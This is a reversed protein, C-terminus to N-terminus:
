MGPPMTKKYVKKVFKPTNFRYGFELGTYANAVNMKIDRLAANRRDTEYRLGAYFRKSQYGLSVYGDLAFVLSEGRSFVEGTNNSYRYFCLDFSTFVAMSLCFRRYFVLNGGAGPALKISFTQMSKADGFDSYFRRKEEGILASDGSMRKFYVGGKLLVGARSKVQHQSYSLPALYSYRKWDFNYIADLQFEKNVIDPRKVIPQNGSGNIDTLGEFKLYKFQFTYVPSNYKITATRYSSPAYDDHKQLGQKLLLAFGISVFRYNVSFGIIDAISTKFKVDGTDGELSSKRSSITSSLAPSLVHVGVTLYNPYSKIYATDLPITKIKLNPFYKKYFKDPHLFVALNEQAYVSSSALLCATLLLLIRSCIM